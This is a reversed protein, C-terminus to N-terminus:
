TRSCYRWPNWSRRKMPRTCSSRLSTNGAADLLTEAFARRPDTSAEALFENHTVYGDEAVYHMSWQFPITEYPHTGLYLPVAPAFAEFDLYFAPPGFGALLGSLSSSVFAVGSRTV